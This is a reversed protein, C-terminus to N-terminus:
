ASEEDEPRWAPDVICLFELRETGTNEIFQKAGPPIYVVQGPSVENIQDNVHMIGKGRILVYVECTKMIHPLSVQGVELSAQALSYRIELGESGPHLIERIITKDGGMIPPCEAITRVIPSVNLGSRELVAGEGKPKDPM